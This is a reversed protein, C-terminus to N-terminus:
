GRWAEVDEGLLLLVDTEEGDPIAVVDAAVVVLAAAAALSRVRRGGPADLLGARWGGGERRASAPLFAERGPSRRLGGELRARVTPRFVAARGAMRRLAPRVLVEFAVLAAVPDPPLGIVPRRGALGFFSTGGPDWAVGDFKWAFGIRDLAARVVGPSAGSAGCVVLLDVAALGFELRGRVEEDEVRAIGLDSAEGGAEAIRALLGASAAARTRGPGVPAGPAVLDDGVALVAARPRRHVLLRDRGAAAAVATAFGDLVGGRRLVVAGTRLDDGAPRVNEGAVVEGRVVIGGTAPDAGEAPVVADAGAPLLGGAAIGAAEGPAIRAAAVSAAALRLRVPSADAKEVDGARVAFGDLAAVPAFPLDDRAAVDAALVRGYAAALPTEEADLPAIGDLVTRVADDVSIM